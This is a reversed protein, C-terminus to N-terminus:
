SKTNSTSQGKAASSRTSAIAVGGTALVGIALTATMFSKLKM